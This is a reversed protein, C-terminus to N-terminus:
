LHRDVAARLAEPAITPTLHGVGPLVTLRANGILGAAEVAITVRAATDDEGWVLEVPCGIRGVVARYTGDDVEAISRVLVDRMVGTAQRYDESGSRRRRQEMREDSVIGWRNLRRAVRHSLSPARRDEGAPRWLPTGTLVVARVLEPHAAALMWAVKGGFSHGVLVVPGAEQCLEVASAAYGVAGWAEPPPGAAGFGALDPAVADLGDLVRDFDTHSRRWGHLAVVRAPPSGYRAGVLGGPLASLVPTRPGPGHRHALTGPLTRTGTM